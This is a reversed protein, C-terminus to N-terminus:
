QRDLAHRDGSFRDGSSADERGPSSGPLLDVAGHRVMAHDREQEPGADAHLERPQPEQARHCPLPPRPAVRASRSSSRPWAGAAQSVGHGSAPPSAKAPRPDEPATRRATAASPAIPLSSRTTADLAAGCTNIDGVVVKAAPGPTPRRSTVRTGSARCATLTEGHLADFRGDTRCTWLAFKGHPDLNAKPLTTMGTGASMAPAVHRVQQSGDLPIM